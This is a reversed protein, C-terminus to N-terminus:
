KFVACWTVVLYASIYCLSLCVRLAKILKIGLVNFAKFVLKLIELM